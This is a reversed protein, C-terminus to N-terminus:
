LKSISIRSFLHYPSATSDVMYVSRYVENNLQNGVCISTDAPFNMVVDFLSPNMDLATGPSGICFQHQLVTSDAEFDKYYLLAYGPYNEGYKSVVPKMTTQMTVASFGTIHYTGAKLRISGDDALSIDNGQQAETINYLRRNLGNKMHVNSDRAFEAYVAYAGPGSNHNGTCSFFIMTIAVGPVLILLNKMEFLPKFSHFLYLSIM